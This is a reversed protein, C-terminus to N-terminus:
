LYEIRCSVSVKYKRKIERVNLVFYADRLGSILTRGVDPAAVLSALVAAWAGLAVTMTALVGALLALAAALKAPAAALLSVFAM